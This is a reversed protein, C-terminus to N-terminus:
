PTITALPKQEEKELEMIESKLEEIKETDHDLLLSLAHRKMQLKKQLDEEFDSLSDILLPNGPNAQLLDKTRQKRAENLEVYEFSQLVEELTSAESSAIISVQDCAMSSIEHWEDTFLVEAYWPM